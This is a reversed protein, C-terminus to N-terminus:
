PFNFWWFKDWASHSVCKRHSRNELETMGSRLVPCCSMRCQGVRNLRHSRDPVRSSNETKVDPFARLSPVVLDILPRCARRSMKPRRRIPLRFQWARMGGTWFHRTHLPHGLVICHVWTFIAVNYSCIMHHPIIYYWYLENYIYIVSHWGWLKPPDELYYCNAGLPEWNFLAWSSQDMTSPFVVILVLLM